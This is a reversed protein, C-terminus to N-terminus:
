DNVKSKFIELMFGKIFGTALELSPQASPPLLFKNCLNKVVHLNTLSIYVAPFVSYTWRSCVLNKLIGSAVHRGGIINLFWNKLGNKENKKVDGSFYNNQKNIYIFKM